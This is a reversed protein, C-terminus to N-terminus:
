FIGCKTKAPSWEKRLSRTTRLAFFMAVERFHAGRLHAYVTRWECMADLLQESGEIFHDIRARITRAQEAALNLSESRYHASLDRVSLISFTAFPALSVLALLLLQGRFSRVFRLVFSWPRATPTSM